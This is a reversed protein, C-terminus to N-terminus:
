ENHLGRFLDNVANLVISGIKNPTVILKFEFFYHFKSMRKIDLYYTNITGNQKLKWLTRRLFLSVFFPSFPEFLLLFKSSFHPLIKYLAVIKHLILLELHQEM